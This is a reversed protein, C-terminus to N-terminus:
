IIGRRVINVVGIQLNLNRLIGKPMLVSDSTKWLAMSCIKAPYGLTMITPFIMTPPLPISSCFLFRFLTSSQTLSSFSIM